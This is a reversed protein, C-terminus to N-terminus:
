FVDRGHRISEAIAARRKEYVSELVFSGNEFLIHDHYDADDAKTLCLKWRECPFESIIEGHFPGPLDPLPLGSMVPDNCNFDIRLEITQPADFGGHEISVPVLKGDSDVIMLRGFQLEIRRFAEKLVRHGPQGSKPMHKEADFMVFRVIFPTESVPEAVPHYVPEPVPASPVYRDSYVFEIEQSRAKKRLRRDLIFIGVGVLFLFAVILWGVTPDKIIGAKVFLVLTISSIALSCYWSFSNKM